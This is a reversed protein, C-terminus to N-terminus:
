WIVKSECLRGTFSNTFCSEWFRTASSRMQQRFALDPGDLVHPQILSNMASEDKNWEIQPAHFTYVSKVEFTAGNKTHVKLIM